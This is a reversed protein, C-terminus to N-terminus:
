GPLGLRQSGHEQHSKRWRVNAPQQFFDGGMGPAGLRAKEWADNECREWSGHFTFCPTLRPAAAKGASLARGWPM